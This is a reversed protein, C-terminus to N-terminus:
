THFLLPSEHALDDAKVVLQVQLGLGGPNPLPDVLEAALEVQFEAALEEVVIVGGPDQRAERRVALDPHQELQLVGGLDHDGDVGGGDLLVLDPAIQADGVVVVHQPEDVGEAGLPEIHAAHDDGLIGALPSRVDEAATQLVQPDLDIGVIWNLAIGM